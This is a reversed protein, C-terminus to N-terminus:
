NIIINNEKGYIALKNLPGQTNEWCDLNGVIRLIHKARTMGVNLRRYDNWFGVNNGSRVTTMIVADAEKGQFSDVTHIQLDNHM